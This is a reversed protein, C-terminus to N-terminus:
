PTIEFVVGQNAAGGNPTTGYVNGSVDVFVNAYQPFAGDSGGTFKHLIKETWAGKPSPTLEFVTGRHAGGTTSMGYLNGASDLWLSGEANAGDDGGTFRHLERTSWTGDNMPVFELIAFVAAVYVDGAPDLVVGAIGAVDGSGGTFAHIVKESWAGQSNPSLQFIVGYDHLGGNYTQGYVNGSKDLAPTVAFPNSGDNGGSFSHLVKETWTNNSGSVLEFVTGFGKTGGGYTTGYLNGQGDIALGGIPSGGDAGGSFSYLVKETWTGNSAPSLEFVTGYFNTGGSQTTGYLNGKSDFILGGTPYSGDGNGFSFSYVVSESSTGNSGPQVEFVAGSFNAGGQSATGYLNGKSDSVVGSMPLGGDNTGTFAYLVKETQATSPLSFVILAISAAAFAFVGNRIRKM